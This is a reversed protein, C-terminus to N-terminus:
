KQNKYCTLVNKLLTAVTVPGVGGPVRSRWSAVEDCTPDIDGLVQDDKKTIGIDILISREKIMEPKIFHPNGVASIVIDANKMQEELNPSDPKIAQSLISFKNQLAGVIPPAFVEPTNAIIMALKNDLPEGTSELMEVVVQAMVPEYPSDLKFGDADKNSDIAEIVKETDIQDPLPLQVIIGHISADTNLNEVAEIVQETSSSGPLELKQFKIGVKEAAHEKLKVYTHSAENDGVLIVGLGPKTDLSEIQEKLELRIAKAIKRGNIIGAM